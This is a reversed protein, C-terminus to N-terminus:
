RGINHVAFGEVHVELNHNVRLGIIGRTDAVPVDMSHVQTGNISFTLHGDTNQM